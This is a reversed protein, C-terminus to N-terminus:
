IKHKTVSTVGVTILLQATYYTFFIIGEALRFGVIWKNVAITFDSIIFISAGLMISLTAASPRSEFSSVAYFFMTHILMDYFFIIVKMSTGQLSAFLIIYIIVGFLVSVWAFVSTRYLRKFHILYCFQAAAFALVGPQFLNEYALCVDGVSSVLLGFIVTTLNVDSDADKVKWESQTGFSHAKYVYFALYWIPIIKLVVALSVEGPRAVHPSFAVLYILVFIYFPLVAPRTLYHLLKSAESKLKFDNMYSEM